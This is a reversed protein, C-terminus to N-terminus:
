KFFGLCNLTWTIFYTTKEITATKTTFKINLKIFYFLKAIKSLKIKYHYKKVVFIIEIMPSLWSLPTTKDKRRYHLFTQAMIDFM